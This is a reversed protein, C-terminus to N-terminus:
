VLEMIKNALNISPDFTISDGFVRMLNMIHMTEANEVAMSITTKVFQAKKLAEIKNAMEFDSLRVLFYLINVNDEIDRCQEM